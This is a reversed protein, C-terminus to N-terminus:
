CRVVPSLSKEKMRTLENLGTGFSSLGNLGTGFSSFGNLGTGFIM